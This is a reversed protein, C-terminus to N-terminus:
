PGVLGTSTKVATVAHGGTRMVVQYRQRVSTVSSGDLRSCWVYLGDSDKTDHCQFRHMELIGRADAVSSGPKIFASIKERFGAEDKPLEDLDGAFSASTGFLVMVLVAISHARKMIGLM